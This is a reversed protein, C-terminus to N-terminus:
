QYFSYYLLRFPVGIPPLFGLALMLSRMLLLVHGVSGFLSVLLSCNLSSCSLQVGKQSFFLVRVVGLALCYVIDM